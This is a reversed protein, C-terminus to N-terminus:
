QLSSDASHKGCLDWEGRGTRNGASSWMRRGCGSCFMDVGEVEGDRANTCKGPQGLGVMRTAQPEERRGVSSGM